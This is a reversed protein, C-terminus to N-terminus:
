VMGKGNPITRGANADTSWYPQAILCLQPFALKSSLALAFPKAGFRV